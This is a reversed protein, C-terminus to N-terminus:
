TDVRPSTSVDPSAITPVILPTFSRRRDAVLGIEDFAQGVNRGAMTRHNSCHGPKADQRGRLTRRTIMRQHRQGCAYHTKKPELIQGLLLYKAQNLLLLLGAGEQM